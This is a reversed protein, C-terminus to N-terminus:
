QFHSVAWPVHCGVPEAKVLAHTHTYDQSPDYPVEEVTEEKDYDLSHIM